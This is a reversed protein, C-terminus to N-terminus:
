FLSSINYRNLIGKVQKHLRPDEGEAPVSSQQGQRAAPPVYKGSPIAPNTSTQDFHAPNSSPDDVYEPTDSIGDFESEELDSESRSKSSGEEDKMEIVRYKAATTASEFNDKRKVGRTSTGIGELLDIM